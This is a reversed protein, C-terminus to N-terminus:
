LLFQNEVEHSPLPKSFFYGQGFECELFKLFTLQKETEIGEAVVDMDLNHALAMISQIITLNEEPKGICNVFSRDIKLTDVPFRHLYSLSSYGTGFDDLSIQIKREKLQRLLTTAVDANEMLLSETIELKLSEPQLGTVNLSHDIHQLIEPEKLQQSSLNVSITLNKAKPLKEQWTKLQQCAEKLVIQGIPIILGTEEAIPIFEGPSIFGKKPHQWRILAEFGVIKTKELAMIPQYYVLFEQNEIARRLDTELNLLKLAQTHMEEDFVEYRGRGKQKARAMAIDADRLIEEPHKYKPSSFTLGISPSTFIERETLQFPSVFQKKITQTTRIAENVDAIKELLIAFEDGGLRAVTDTSGVLTELTRSIAVLLRDGVRHGDSENVVKFRDLDLSLVAFSYDKEEQARQLSRGVRELFLSRNPLGTLPDHLADYSLKQQAKELAATREKVQQELQANLQRLERRTAQLALHTSVRALVEEFQFPKTIYDVGGAQFAKMKDGGDQLASLFIVPIHRTKEEAQLLECVRYGDLEPMKIDLLILDPPQNQAATIAMKGSVVARVKYGQKTLMTSLIRLNTPKDDVILINAPPLSASPTTM